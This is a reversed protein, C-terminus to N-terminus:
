TDTEHLSGAPLSQCCVRAWPGFWLTGRSDVLVRVCTSWHSRKTLPAFGRALARPSLQPAGADRKVGAGRRAPGKGGPWTAAAATSGRREGGARGM